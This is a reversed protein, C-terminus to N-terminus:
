HSFTDIPWGIEDRFYTKWRPFVGEYRKLHKEERAWHTKRQADTMKEWDPAPAWRPWLMIDGCTFCVNISAVPVDGDFLVVAHRPFPCKSVAVDGEHAKVIEVAKKAMGDDLPKREAVDASWGNEEYARLQAPYRMPFQNFLVAEARTWAHFPWSKGTREM